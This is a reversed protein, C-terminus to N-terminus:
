TLQKLDYCENQETHYMYGKFWLWNKKAWGLAQLFGHKSYFHTLTMALSICRSPFTAGVHHLSKLLPQGPQYNGKSHQEIDAAEGGGTHSISVMCIEKEHREEYGAMKGPQQKLLVCAFLTGQISGGFLGVRCHWNIMVGVNIKEFSIRRNRLKELM